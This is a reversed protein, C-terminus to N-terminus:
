YLLLTTSHLSVTMHQFGFAKILSQAGASMWHPTGRVVKGRKVEPRNPGDFVFVVAVPISLLHSLRWFLGQLVANQGTNVNIHLGTTRQLEEFWVSSKQLYVCM